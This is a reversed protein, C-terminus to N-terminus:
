AEAETFLTGYLELFSLVLFMTGTSTPGTQMVRFFRFPGAQSVAREPVRWTALHMKGDLATDNEHVKLTAWNTNDKSGQLVWNRPIHDQGNVYYGLTYHSPAMPSPLEVSVWSSLASDTEFFAGDHHKFASLSALDGEIRSSARLVILFPDDPSFLAPNSFVQTNARTGLYHVVGRQDEDDEFPIVAKIKYTHAHGGDAAGNNDMEGSFRRPSASPIGQQQAHHRQQAHSYPTGLASAGGDIGLGAFGGVPDGNSRPSAGGQGGARSAFNSGNAGNAGASGDRLLRRRQAEEDVAAPTGVLVVPPAAQDFHVMEIGEIARQIEKDQCFYFKVGRDEGGGPVVVTGETAEGSGSFRAADQQALDDEREIAQASSELAELLANLPENLAGLTANGTGENLGQIAACAKSLRQGEHVLEELRGNQDDDQVEYVGKCDRLLEAEKARLVEHLNHFYAKIEEQARTREASSWERGRELRAIAGRLRQGQENAQALGANLVKGTKSLTEAVMRLDKEAAREKKEKARTMASM